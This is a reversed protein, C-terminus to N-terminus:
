GVPRDLDEFAGARQECIALGKPDVAAYGLHPTWAVHLGKVEGDCAELFSGVERPLSGRDRDDGGAVVDLVAAADRVTRTIPGVHNVREFGGFVARDPVRGFSPKLGVLGSVSAPVPITGGADSGLAIPGVGSAVAAAGGGSSGGPTLTPDWPNRTVGFLPCETFAKHGFESTNTKGLLVTGAAKLRGVALADEGPVFDAFLRSGGTTVLGRTPLVDKVSLPVGHLPGIPEGKMVAIEAERAAVRAVDATVLCFANLAPNVADLRALIADLVELPKVAKRRVLDAIELASLWTEMSLVCQIM